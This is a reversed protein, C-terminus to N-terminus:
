KNIIGYLTLATIADVSQTQGKSSLQFFTLENRARTAEDTPKAIEMCLNAANANNQLSNIAEEHIIALVDNPPVLKQAKNNSDITYAIGTAIKNIIEDGYTKQEERPQTCYTMLEVMGENSKQIYGLMQQGYEIEAITLNPKQTPKTINTNAIKEQPKLEEKKEVVLETTTSIPTTIVVRNMEESSIIKETKNKYYKFSAYAGGALLIGGIIIIVLMMVKKKARKDFIKNSEPSLLEGCHKCKIAEDQIEEACFPCKKM